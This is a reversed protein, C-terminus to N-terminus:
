KVSHKKKTKKIYKKIKDRAKVKKKVSKGVDKQATKKRNAERIKQAEIRKELRKKVKEKEDKKRKRVGKKEKQEFILSLEIEIEELKKKLKEVQSNIEKIEQSNDKLEMIEGTEPCVFDLELAKEESYEINIGPSKYYRKNKRNTLEHELKEIDRTVYKKLLLLAKEVDFTWFYTYWGKKKDKKRLFSVLGEDNLKYLVNRIQNITLGIKKAILFENVNQKDILVDAIQSTNKGAVIVAINQLLELRNNKLNPQSVKKSVM